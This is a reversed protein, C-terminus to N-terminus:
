VVSKRDEVVRSALPMSASARMWILDHEDGKPCSHYVAQGTDADTCVVTFDM